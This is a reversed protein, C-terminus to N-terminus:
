VIVSVKSRCQPCLIRMRDGRSLDTPERPPVPEAPEDVIQLESLSTLMLTPNAYALPGLKNYLWRLHARATIVAGCVSCLVLEKEVSMQQDSRKDSVMNYETELQIGKDTICSRECTQCFICHDYMVTLKRVPTDGDTCDEMTIARAPCTQFCASCGVCDDDHYTPRGRYGEPVTPPKKPFASTYPGIILAKVAEVIERIKPLRM